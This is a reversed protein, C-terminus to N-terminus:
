ARVKALSGGFLGLTKKKFESLVEIQVDADVEAGLGEIAAATAEELSEGQGIYEKIM